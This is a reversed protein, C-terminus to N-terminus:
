LDPKESVPRGFVVLDEGYFTSNMKDLKIIEKVKTTSGRRRPFSVAPLGGLIMPSITVVMFDTLRAELFSTLVRAGGEVILRRIGRAHLIDLITHIHLNGPRSDQVYVVEAGLSTLKQIKERDAGELTAILPPNSQVLNSDVPIRLNRDLVVPQPNNGEVLRVTLHPDDALLTGIGILIADHDARLQHTLRASEPGSIQTREGEMIAISGDLSQAYSLTVFPRDEPQRIQDAVAM